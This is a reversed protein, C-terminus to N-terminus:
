HLVIGLQAYDVRQYGDAGVMVAEPAIRAVEDAMVGFKRGAGGIAVFEAKYDFLYLGFGAPHRGVEVINEKARPDSMMGMMITFIGTGDNMSGSSGGTLNRVSGYVKLEPRQYATKATLNASHETMTENRKRMACNLTIILITVYIGWIGGHGREDIATDRYLQHVAAVGRPDLPSDSNVENGEGASLLAPELHTYAASFEAKTERGEVLPPLIGALARRHIYKTVGGRLRM